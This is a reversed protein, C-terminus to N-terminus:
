RKDFLADESRDTKFGLLLGVELLKVAVAGVLRFQFSELMAVISEYALGYEGADDVYERLQALQDAFSQLDAPFQAGVEPQREIEALVASLNKKICDSNKIM